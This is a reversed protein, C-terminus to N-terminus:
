TATDSKAKLLDLYAGAILQQPRIQLLQMLSRAESEGDALSADPELVVELEVFDGLGEVQDLHVRTRGLLYLWRQKIVRGRLGLANSMLERLSQPDSVPSRWYSSTKPGDVDDRRYFLLEASGDAFQRLKLRGDPCHFFCDDQCLLQPAHSCLEDLLARLKDLDDVRAKIEINKNM